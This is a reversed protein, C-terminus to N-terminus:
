GRDPQLAPEHASVGVAGRLAEGLSFVADGRGSARERGSRPAPDGVLDARVGSADSLDCFVQPGAPVGDVVRDNRPSFGEEVGVLLADAGDFGQAEVLDGEGLETFAPPGM